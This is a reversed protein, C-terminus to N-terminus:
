RGSRWCASITVLSYACVKITRRIGEGAGGALLGHHLWLHDRRDAHGLGHLVSLHVPSRADPTPTAVVPAVKNIMKDLEPVDYNWSFIPNVFNKFINTGVPPSHRVRHDLAAVVDVGSRDDAEHRETERAACHPPIM